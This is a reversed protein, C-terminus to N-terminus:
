PFYIEVMRTVVGGAVTIEMATVEEDADERDAAFRAPTTEQPDCCVDTGYRVDLVTAEPDITIPARETDDDNRIFYDFPEEGAAEAAAAAEAGTLLEAPDFTGVIEEHGAVLAHLYGFYIGDPLAEGDTPIPVERDGGGDDDGCAALPLGALLLVLVAGRVRTRM